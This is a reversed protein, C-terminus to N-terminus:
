KGCNNIDFRDISKDRGALIVRVSNKRVLENLLSDNVPVHFLFVPISGFREEARKGYVPNDVSGYPMALATISNFYYAIKYANIVLSSFINKESLPHIGLITKFGADTYRSLALPNSAEIYLRDRIADDETISKLRNIAQATEAATLHELNKYDLWFYHGEGAASFLAELTLIRGEKKPYIYDGNADKKPHGHSIIFRNMKADYHFDVEAGNAGRGFARKFATISNREDHTNYLGRSSWIKHCNDYVASFDRKEFQADVYVVTINWLVALAAVVGFAIVKKM